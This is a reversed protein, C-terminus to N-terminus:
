ADKKTLSNVASLMELEVDRKLKIATEKESLPPTEQPDLTMLFATAQLYTPATCLKKGYLESLTSNTRDLDFYVFDDPHEEDEMYYFLCEGEFGLEKLAIAVEKSVVWFAPMDFTPKDPDIPTNSSM